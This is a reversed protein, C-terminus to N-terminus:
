KGQILVQPKKFSRNLMKLQFLPQKESKMENYTLM